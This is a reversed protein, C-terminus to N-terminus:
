AINEPRFKNRDSLYKILVVEMGDKRQCFRVKDVLVTMLYVGRGNRKKINESALPDPLKKYDFGKGEDKIRLIVKDKYIWIKLDVFKEPHTKNGHVIANAVAESLATSLESKTRSCCCKNKELLEDLKRITRTIQDTASKIQFHYFTCSNKKIASSNGNEVMSFDPGDNKFEIMIKVPSTIMEILQILCM